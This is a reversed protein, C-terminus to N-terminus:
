IRLSLGLGMVSGPDISLLPYVQEEFRGRRQVEIAGTVADTGVQYIPTENSIAQHLFCLPRGNSIRGIVEAPLTGPRNVVLQRTMQKQGFEAIKLRDVERTLKNIEMANDAVYTKLTPKPKKIKLPAKKKAITKKPKMARGKANSVTSTKGM